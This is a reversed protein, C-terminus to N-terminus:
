RIINSHNKLLQLHELECLFAEAWYSERDVNKMLFIENSVRHRVKM